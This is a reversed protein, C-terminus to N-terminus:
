ALVSRLWEALAQAVQPDSEQALAFSEQPSLGEPARKYFHQLQPFRAVTARPNAQLLRDANEPIVSPDRGGQLILAPQLVQAFEAAPDVQELSRLYPANQPQLFFPIMAAYPNHALDAPLPRDAAYDAAWAMAHAYAQEAEPGAAGAARDQEFRQWLMLHLLPKSPGSLLALARVDPRARALLTAVVAGESHGAVALPLTPLRRALEDLFAAAVRPRQHFSRYREAALAQDRVLAGTGPGTKAYRLVALRAAALQEALDKYAHPLCAPQGPFMPAFNGDVDSNLSGPILLLAALPQPPLTLAAPLEIGDMVLSLRLDQM